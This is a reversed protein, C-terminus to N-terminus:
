NPSHSCFWPWIYHDIMPCFGFMVTMHSLMSCRIATREFIAHQASKWVLVFIVTKAWPLRKHVKRTRFCFLYVQKAHACTFETGSETFILVIRSIRVCSFNATYTLRFFHWVLFTSSSLYRCTVRVSHSAARACFPCLMLDTNWSEFLPPSVVISIM